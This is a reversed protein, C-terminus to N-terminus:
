KWLIGVQTFIMGWRWPCVSLCVSLRASPRCTMYQRMVASQSLMARYFTVSFLKLSGSERAILEQWLWNLNEFLSNHGLKANHETLLVFEAVPLLVTYARVIHMLKYM